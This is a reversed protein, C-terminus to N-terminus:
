GKTGTEKRFEVTDGNSLEYDDDCDTIVEGNQHTVVATSDKPIGFPTEFDDRLDDITYGSDVTLNKHENAGSIINITIM